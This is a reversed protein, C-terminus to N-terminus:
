EAYSELVAILKGLPVPKKFDDLCEWVPYDRVADIYSATPYAMNNEDIYIQKM